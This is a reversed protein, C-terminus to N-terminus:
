STTGGTGFRNRIVVTYEALTGLGMAARRADVGGPDEIPLPVLVGDVPTFKTGYVQSRGDGVRLADTTYAVDKGPLEGREMAATMRALCRERLERHGDAHQVLRGAAEAAATGVWAPTPWDDLEALLAMGEDTLARMKEELATDSFGGETWEVRLSTDLRDLRLLRAALEGAAPDTHLRVSEPSWTWTFSRGGEPWDIVASDPTVRVGHGALEGPAAYALADRLAIGLSSLDLRAGARLGADPPLDSEAEGAPGDVTLLPGGGASRFFYPVDGRALQAAEAPTPDGPPDDGTYEATSRLLVRVAFDRELRAALEERYRCMLVWAEFMGRVFAPAYPGYGVRGETDAVVTRSDPEGWASRRRVLALGGPGPLFAALPGDVACWRATNELGVHHTGHGDPVLGTAALATGPNLVVELDVPYYLPGDGGVLLNGAILDSLGFAYAVATLEGARRWFTGAREPSLVTGRLEEDGDALLVGQPGPEIWESWSYARRDRGKGRWTRFVPLRVAGGSVRNLLSFVSGRPAAFVDECGAPRPKYAVSGGGAMRLRLVRQRHNHTEGDHAEVALVPGALRPDRPWATRLDRDLRRQFSEMAATAAAFEAAPDPARGLACATFVERLLPAFSALTVVPDDCWADLRAALDAWAAFRPEALAAAIVDPDGVHHDFRWVGGPGVRVVPPLAAGGTGALIAEVLRAPTRSPRARVPRWLTEPVPPVTM